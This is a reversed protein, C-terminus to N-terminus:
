VRVDGEKGHVMGGSFIRLSGRTGQPEEGRGQQSARERESPGRPGTAEGVNREGSGLRSLDRKALLPLFSAGCELNLLEIRSDNPSNEGRGLSESARGGRAEPKSWISSESKGLTEWTALIGLSELGGSRPPSPSSM